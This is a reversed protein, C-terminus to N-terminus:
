AQAYEAGPKLPSLMKLVSAPCTSEVPGSSESMDKYGFGDRKGNRTLFILALVIPAGPTVDYESFPLARAGNKPVYQAAVYWTSGHNVVRLPSVTFSDTEWTTMRTIEAKIQPRTLPRDQFCWGM